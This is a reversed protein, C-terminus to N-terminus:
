ISIAICTDDSGRGAYPTSFWFIVCKTKRKLTKAQSVYIVNASWWHVSCRRYSFSELALRRYGRDNRLTTILIKQIAPFIAHPVESNATYTSSNCLNPSHSSSCSNVTTNRNSTFTILENLETVWHIFIYCMEFQCKKYSCHQKNKNKIFTCTLTTCTTYTCSRSTFNNPLM